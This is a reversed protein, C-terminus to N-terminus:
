VDRKTVTYGAAAGGLKKMQARAKDRGTDTGVLKNTEKEYVGWPHDEIAPFKKATAKASAVKTHRHHQYPNGGAAETKVMQYYSGAHAKSMGQNQAAAMFTKRIDKAEITTDALTASYISRAIDMKTTM